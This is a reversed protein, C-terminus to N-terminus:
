NKFLKYSKRNDDLKYVIPLNCFVNVPKGNQQGPVWKPMPKIVRVAEEDCGYGIGKLVVVNEIEGDKKVIFKVFARGSINAKQAAVPYTINKALFKYM